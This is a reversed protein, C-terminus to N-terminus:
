LSLYVYAGFVVAIIGAVGALLWLVNGTRRALALSAITAGVQGGLMAYFFNESRIRHRESQFTSVKVRVEYLYGLWFNMTSEARYRPGEETPTGGENEMGAVQAHAEALAADLRGAPIRGALKVTAEDSDRKLIATLVTRIEDDSTPAPNADPSAMWNRVQQVIDPPPKPPNPASPNKEIAALIKATNEAMMARDRKFGAFNWQSAAKAQDQAAVSRWFMARSMESSSLGAFATAIATLAIPLAAGLKQFLTKPAEADM